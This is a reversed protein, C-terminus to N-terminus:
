PLWRRRTRRAPKAGAEIPGHSARWAAQRVRLGRLVRPKRQRWRAHVSKAWLVSRDVMRVFGYTTIYWPGGILRTRGAGGKVVAASTRMMTFISHRHWMMIDWPEHLQDM